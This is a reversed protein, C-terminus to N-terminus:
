RISLTRSGLFLANGEDASEVNEKKSDQDLGQAMNWLKKITRTFRFSVFQFNVSKIM